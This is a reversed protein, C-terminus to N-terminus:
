GDNVKRERRVTRTPKRDLERRVQERTMPHDHKAQIDVVVEIGTRWNGGTRMVRVGPIQAIQAPASVALGHMVKYVYRTSVRAFQTEKM